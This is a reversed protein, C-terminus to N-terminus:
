IKFMKILHLIVLAPLSFFLNLPLRHLALGYLVEDLRLSDPLLPLLFPLTQFLGPDLVEQGLLFGPPLALRGDFHVLPLPLALHDHFHALGPSQLSGPLLLLFPEPQLEVLTSEALHFTLDFLSFNSLFDSSSNLKTFSM